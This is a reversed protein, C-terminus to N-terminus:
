SFPVNRRTWAVEESRSRSFPSPVGTLGSKELIQFMILEIEQSGTPSSFAVLSFSKHFFILSIRPEACEQAPEEGGAARRHCPPFGRQPQPQRVGRPDAPAPAPVWGGAKPSSCVRFVCVRPGRLAECRGAAAATRVASANRPRDNPPCQSRPRSSPARRTRQCIAAPQIVESSDNRKSDSKEAM